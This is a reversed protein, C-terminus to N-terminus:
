GVSHVNAAGGPHTKALWPVRAGEEKWVRARGDRSDRAGGGTERAEVQRARRWRDLEAKLRGGENPTLQTCM